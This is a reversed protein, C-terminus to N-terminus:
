PRRRGRPRRRASRRPAPGRPRRRSPAGAARPTPPCAPPRRRGRCADTTARARRRTRRRRRRARGRRRRVDAQGARVHQVEGGAREVHGARHEGGAVVRRLYLPMLSQRAPADGIPASVPSAVIRSPPRAPRGPGPRPCRARAADLLPRHEGVVGGVQALQDVQRRQPRQPDDDVGAVPHGAVGHGLHEALQREVDHRHVELEVAREGVVLRVREVRLVEDVQLLPTTASPASMPRAKSPSASRQKTTSSRPSGTLGLAIVARTATRSSALDGPSETM